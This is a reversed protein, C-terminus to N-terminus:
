CRLQDIRPGEQVSVGTGAADGDASADDAAQARRLGRGCRRRVAGKGRPSAVADAPFAVAGAAFAVRDARRWRSGSTLCSCGCPMCGSRSAICRSGGQSGVAAAASAVHGATSAVDAARRRRSGGPIRRCGSAVVVHDARWVTADARAGTADSRVPGTADARWAVRDARSGAHTRGSEPQMRGPHLASGCASRHHRWARRNVARPRAPPRPIM